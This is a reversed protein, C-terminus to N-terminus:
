NSITTVLISKRCESTTLAVKIFKKDDQDVTFSNIAHTFKSKFLTHIKTRNEKTMETVDVLVSLSKNNTEIMKAIEEWQADTVLGELEPSKDEVLKTYDDKPPKPISLDTLTVVNGEMDIENVQFDSYKQKIIGTFPATTGVFETIGVDVEKLNNM